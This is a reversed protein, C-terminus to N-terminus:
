MDGTWSKSSVDLDRQNDDLIASVDQTTKIISQGTMKDKEYLTTVGTFDDKDLIKM